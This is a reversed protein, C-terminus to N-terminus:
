LTFVFKYYLIIFCIFFLIRFSVATLRENVVNAHHDYTPRSCTSVASTNRTAHTGIQPMRACDSASYISLLTDDDSVSTSAQM